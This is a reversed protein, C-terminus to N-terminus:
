RVVLKVPKFAKKRNGNVSILYTGSKMDTFQVINTGSLVNLDYSAVLQGNITHIFVTSEGLDEQSNVTVTFSGDNSPNPYVVLGNESKKANCDVFVVPYMTMKGDFDTQTLRYYNAAVDDLVSYYRTSNTTGAGIVSEVESWQEGDRSREVTFYDSNQESATTWSVHASNGKCNASFSSLVIPLPDITYVIRVEGRGGAGGSGSRASSNNNKGRTGGGRVAGVTGITTANNSNGFGGAGGAGGDANGGAGGASASTPSGAGNIPAPTAAVGVETTGGGGGGGGGAQNGSALRRGIAGNGGDQVTGSGTGPASYGTAGAGVNTTAGSGGSGGSAM